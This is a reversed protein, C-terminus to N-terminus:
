TRFVIHLDNKTKTKTRTRQRAQPPKMNAKIFENWKLHTPFDHKNQGNISEIVWGRQIGMYELPSGDDISSVIMDGSTEDWTLKISNLSRRLINDFQHTIFLSDPEPEPEHGPEPEPGHESRHKLKFPDTAPSDDRIHRVCGQEKLFDMIRAIVHDLRKRFEKSFQWKLPDVIDFDLIGQLYMTGRDFERHLLSGMDPQVVLKEKKILKHFRTQITKMIYRKFDDPSTVTAYIYTMGSDKIWGNINLFTDRMLLFEDEGPVLSLGSLTGSLRRPPKPIVLICPNPKGRAFGLSIDERNTYSSYCCVGMVFKTPDQHSKYVFRNASPDGPKSSLELNAWLDDNIISNMWDTTDGRYVVGNTIINDAPPGSWFIWDDLVEMSKYFINDQTKNGIQFSQIIEYPRKNKANLINDTTWTAVALLHAPCQLNGKIFNERNPYIARLYPLEHHLVDYIKTANGMNLASQSVNMENLLSSAWRAGNASLNRFIEEDGGASDISQSTESIIRPSIKVNWNEGSISSHFNGGGRQVKNRQKKVRRTKKHSRNKPRKTKKKKRKKKKKNKAILAPSRYTEHYVQEPKEIFMDRASEYLKSLTINDDRFVQDLLSEGFKDEDIIFSGQFGCNSQRFENQNSQLIILTDNNTVNYDKLTKRLHLKNGKYVLGFVSENIKNSINYIAASILIKDDIDIKDIKGHISKIIVSIM